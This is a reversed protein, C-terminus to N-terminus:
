GGEQSGVHIKEAMGEKMGEEMRGTGQAPPFQLLM